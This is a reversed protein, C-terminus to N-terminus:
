PSPILQMNGNIGIAPLDDGSVERCIVDAIDSGQRVQEILHVRRDAGHDSFAGIVSLWDIIGHRRAM